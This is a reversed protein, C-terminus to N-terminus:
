TERQRSPVRVAPRAAPAPEGGPEADADGAAVMQRAPGNRRAFRVEGTVCYAVEKHPAEVPGAAEHALMASTQWILRRAVAGTVPHGVYRLPLSRVVSALRALARVPPDGPRDVLIEVAATATRPACVQSSPRGPASGAAVAVRALLATTEDAPDRAALWMLGRLLLDTEECVSGGYVRVRELLATGAGVAGPTAALLADSDEPSM